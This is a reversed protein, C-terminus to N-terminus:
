LKLSEIDNLYKRGSDTIKMNKGNVEILGDKSMNDFEFVDNTIFSIITWEDEEPRAALKLLIETERENYM